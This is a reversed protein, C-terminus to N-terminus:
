GGAREVSALFPAGFPNVVEVHVARGDRRVLEASEVTWVHLMRRTDSCPDAATTFFQTCAPSHSHWTVLDGAGGPVEAGAPAVFFAGVLEPGDPGDTFVLGEPHAPDLVDGDAVLAPNLHHDMPGRPNRPPRYGAAEAEAPSPYAAVAERTRALLDDAARREEPTAAAYRRDYPEQRPHAHRGERMRAGATEAHGHTTPPTGGDVSAAAQTGDGDGGGTLALAAGGGVGAAVLLAAVGGAAPRLEM